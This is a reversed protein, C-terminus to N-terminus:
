FPQVKKKKKKKKKLKPFHQDGTGRSKKLQEPNMMLRIWHIWLFGQFDMGEAKLARSSCHFLRNFVTLDYKISHEGPNQNALYNSQDL